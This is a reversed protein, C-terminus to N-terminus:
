DREKSGLKPTFYLDIRAHNSPLVSTTGIGTISNRPKLLIAVSIDNSSVGSPIEGARMRAKAISITLFATASHAGRSSKAFRWLWGFMPAIQM